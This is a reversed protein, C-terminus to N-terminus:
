YLDGEMSEGLGRSPTVNGFAGLSRLARVAEVVHAGDPHLSLYTNYGETTNAAQAESWVQDEASSQSGVRAPSAAILAMLFARTFVAWKSLKAM